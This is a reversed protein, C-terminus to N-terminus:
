GAAADDLTFGLKITLQWHAVKGDAVDGRIDTVEFWRINHLSESAKIVASSVADDMSKKSTGTIEIIKYVHGTM